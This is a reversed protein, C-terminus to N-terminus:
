NFGYNHGDLVFPYPYCFKQITSSIIVNRCLAFHIKGMRRNRFGSVSGRPLVFYTHSVYKMVKECFICLKSVYKM